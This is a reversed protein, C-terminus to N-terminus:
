DIYLGNCSAYTSRGNGMMWVSLDVQMSIITHPGDDSQVMVQGPMCYMGQVSIGHKERSLCDSSRRASKGQQLPM